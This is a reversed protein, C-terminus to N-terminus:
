LPEHLVRRSRGFLSSASCTFPCLRVVKLIIMSSQIGMIQFNSYIGMFLYVTTMNSTGTVYM